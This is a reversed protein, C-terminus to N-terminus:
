KQDKESEAEAAKGKLFIQAYDPIAQKREDLLRRIMQETEEPTQIIEPTIFVILSSRTKANNRYTFLEGLIPIDGLFPVKTVSKTNSDTTLGGIVATQGSRILMKTAITSASIRPLAISGTGSGSGVTFVDFGSPALPPGGTGTLSESEPIVTLMVKDTGPVIHPIMMLQFGTQVPSGPAEEVVLTLGGAQGQEARSQAYRVTDGVFITAEQHDLAIIKPAQVIESSDDKKLLRLAASMGTFDMAGFITQPMIVASGTTNLNPDAFPGKPQGPDTPLINDEWGGPGMTFPLRHPIAGLNMSAVWGTDGINIGYELINTNRVTVFKIDVFVQRPEVDVIQIIREMDDVIPKTDKVLIVNQRDIYELSGASSLMRRLAQLVTFSQAPNDGAPIPISGKVYESSIQPVFPSRPRVYHLQFTRQVLQDVLTAPSVVRLIDRDEEVVTYGLTKVIQELADRWPVDKLRLTITGQVEPATIINAGSIKSIADIVKTIDAQDFAFRVRPPKEVKLVNQGKQIVVCEAKEAALDLATRWHVNKLKLTVRADISDDMVINGGSKNRIFEVVDKLPRDRLDLDKLIAQRDGPGTTTQLGNQGQMAQLGSASFLLAGILAIPLSAKAAQIPLM